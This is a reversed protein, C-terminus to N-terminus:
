FWFEKFLKIKCKYLNTFNYTINMKLFILYFLFKRNLCMDRVSKIATFLLKGSSTKNKIFSLSQSDNKIYHYCFVTLNLILFELMLFKRCLDCKLYRKNSAKVWFGFNFLYFTHSFFVFSFNWMKCFFRWM